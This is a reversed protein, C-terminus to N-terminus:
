CTSSEQWDEDLEKEFQRLSALWDQMETKFINNIGKLTDRDIDGRDSLFKYFKKISSAYQMLSPESFIVNKRIAWDGLFYDIEEHGIVPDIGEWLLYDDIYLGVNHTHNRVTQEGLGQEKLSCFFEKLLKKNSKELSKLESENM